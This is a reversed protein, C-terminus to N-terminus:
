RPVALSTGSVTDTDIIEFRARIAPTYLAAVVVLYDPPPGDADWDHPVEAVEALGLARRYFNLSPVLRWHMAELRVPHPPRGSERAAVLEVFRRAGADLRWVAFHTTQLQVVYQLLAACLVLGGAAAALGRWGGAARLVALAAVASLTGLLVLYLGWRDTPYLAGITLHAAWLLAVCLLLAGGALVALREAPVRASAARPRRRLVGLGVLALLVLAPGALWAALAVVSAFAGGGTDVPWSTEHHAFSRQALDVATELLSARGYDYRISGARLLSPSWLAGALLIGPVALRALSPGLRRGRDAAGWVLAVTAVALSPLAFTLHSVTALGL